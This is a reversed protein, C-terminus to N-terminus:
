LDRWLPNTVVAVLLVAVIMISAGTAMAIPVGRANAVLGMPLAGLPLLGQNLLYAGLVRGRVDDTIRHQVAANNQSMFTAGLFGGMFLFPITLPMSRITSLALITAGYILTAGFLVPGLRAASKRGAV